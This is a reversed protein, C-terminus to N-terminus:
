NEMDVVVVDQSCFGSLDASTHSAYLTFGNLAVCGPLFWTQWDFIVLPVTSQLKVVVQDESKLKFDVSDFPYDSNVTGM